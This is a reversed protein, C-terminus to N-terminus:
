PKRKMLGEMFARAEPSMARLRELGGIRKIKRKGEQTEM